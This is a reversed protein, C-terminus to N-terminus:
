GEEIDPPLGGVFVKRSFLTKPKADEGDCQSGVTQPVNELNEDYLVASGKAVISPREAFLM